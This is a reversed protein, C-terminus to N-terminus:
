SLRKLRENRSVIRQTQNTNNVLSPKRLYSVLFEMPTDQQNRRELDVKLNNLPITNASVLVLYDKTPNPAFNTQTNTIANALNVDENFIDSQCRAEDFDFPKDGSQIVALKSVSQLFDYTKKKDDSIQIKEIFEIDSQLSLTHSPTVEIFSKDLDINDNADKTKFEFGNFKIEVQLMQKGNLQLPSFPLRVPVDVFSEENTIMLKHGVISSKYDIANSTKQNIIDLLSLDNYIKTPHATQGVLTATVQIKSLASETLPLVLPLANMEAIDRNLKIKFNLDLGNYTGNKLDVTKYSQYSINEKM